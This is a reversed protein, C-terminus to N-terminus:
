RSRELHGTFTELLLQAAAQPNPAAQLLAGEVLDPGQPDAEVLPARGFQDGQAQELPRLLGRLAAEQDPMALAHLVAQTLEEQVAPRLPVAQTELAWLMLQLSYQQSPDITWTEAAMPMPLGHLLWTKASQNVPHQNIPLSEAM